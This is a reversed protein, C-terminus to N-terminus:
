EGAQEVRRDDAMWKMWVVVLFALVALSVIQALTLAGFLRDDKARIFEVAFREVALLGFVVLATLGPRIRRRLLWMGFLWIGLCALTEYLQTPHVPILLQDPFVDPIQAQYEARM